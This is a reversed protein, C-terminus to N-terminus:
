KYKLECSYFLSNEQNISVSLDHRKTDNCVEKITRCIWNITVTAQGQWTFSLLSKKKIRLWSLKWLKDTWKYCSIINHGKM